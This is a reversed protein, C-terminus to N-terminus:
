PITPDLLRELRHGLKIASKLYDQLAASHKVEKYPLWLDESEDFGLWRVAFDM